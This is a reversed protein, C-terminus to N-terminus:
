RFFERIKENTVDISSIIEPTKETTFFIMNWEPAGEKRIDLVWQNNKGQFKLYKKEAPITKIGMSDLRSTAEAQYFSYDDAITQFDEGYKEEMESIQEETPHIVIVATSDIEQIESLSPTVDAKYNDINLFSEYNNEDFGTVITSDSPPTQNNSSIDANKVGCSCCVLLILIKRM